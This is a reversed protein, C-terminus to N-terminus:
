NIQAYGGDDMKGLLHERMPALSEKLARRGRALLSELADVSIEMIEAAEINSLEQYHCLTIALRQREPLKELAADIAFRREAAFVTQDQRDAPDATEPAAEEPAERKKKRLQDLCYNMAVRYLWTQFKAGQPKWKAANRWLRLFTEQAADEAAPKSGLMRYCAAYIMQTHREVLRAAATRDGAGARRVLAEDSDEDQKM